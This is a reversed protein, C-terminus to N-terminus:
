TDDGVRDGDGDAVMLLGAWAGLVPVALGAAGLTLGLADGLRVGGGVDLGRGASGRSSVGNGGERSRPRRETLPPGSVLM